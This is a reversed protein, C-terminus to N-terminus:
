RSRRKSPKSRSFLYKWPIYRPTQAFYAQARPLRARLEWEELEFLPQWLLFWVGLWIWMSTNESVLAAGLGMVAFGAGIPRRLFRYPPRTELRSARRPFLARRGLVRGAVFMMLAGALLAFAGLVRVGSQASPLLRRGQNAAWIMSWLLGLTAIGALVNAAYWAWRGIATSARRLLISSLEALAAAVLALLFPYDTFLTELRVM